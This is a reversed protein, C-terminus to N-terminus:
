SSNKSNTNQESNFICYLKELDEPTKVRYSKSNENQKLFIFGDKEWVFKTGFQSKFKRALLFTKRTTIHMYQNVFIKEPTKKSTVIKLQDTLIPGNKKYKQLVEEKKAFTQLEVLVFSQNHNKSTIRKCYKIDNAVTPIQLINFIDTILQLLNEDVLIPIGTISIYNKYIHQHLFTQETRLSQVETHLNEVEKKLVINEREIDETRKNIKELSENFSRQEDHMQTLTNQISNTAQILALIDNKTCPSDGDSIQPEPTLNSKPTPILIEKTIVGPTAIPSSNGSRQTVTNTNIILQKQTTSKSRTTM